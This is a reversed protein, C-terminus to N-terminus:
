LLGGQKYCHWVTTMMGNVVCTGVHEALAPVEAGTPIITFFEPVEPLSPDSETWINFSQTDEKFGFHVVRSGVPFRVEQWDGNGPWDLRWRLVERM